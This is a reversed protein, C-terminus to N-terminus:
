SKLEAFVAEISKLIVDHNLRQNFAVQYQDPTFSQEFEKKVKKIILASTSVDLEKVSFIYKVEMNDENMRILLNLHEISPYAKGDPPSLKVEVSDNKPKKFKVIFRFTIEFIKILELFISRPIVNAQLQGLQNPDEGKGYLFYLSSGTHTISCNPKLQTEWTLEGRSGNESNKLAIPILDTFAHDAKAKVKKSQGLGLYLSAESPSPLDGQHNKITLTGTIRDGQNWSEGEVYLKYELPKQFFTGKM